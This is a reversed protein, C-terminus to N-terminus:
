QALAVELEKSLDEKAAPKATRKASSKSKSATAPKVSRKSKATAKPKSETKAAPAEAAKALRKLYANITEEIHVPSANQPYRAKCADKIAIYASKRTEKSDSELQKRLGNEVSDILGKIFESRGGYSKAGADTTEVRAPKIAEINLKM